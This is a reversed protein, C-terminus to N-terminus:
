AQKGEFNLETTDQLCLVVQHASMRKMSAKAHAELVAEGSTDENALFRYAAQTQGWDGCAQPISSGPNQALQETLIALRRDLRADGFSLTEFEEETWQKM